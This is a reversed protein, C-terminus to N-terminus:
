IEGRWERGERLTEWLRRYQEPTTHSSQLVGPTEGVLEDRAYGTLRTFFQNVYEIEGDTNAILIASPSQDVAASLTLLREEVHKLRTLDHTAGVFYRRGALGIEGISLYMPFTAGDKRRGVVERGIGIIKKVGTQRYAALYGDHAERYPSPMLMTVNRGFTESRDYGFLREAGSSFFRILGDEEIVILGDPMTDFVVGLKAEIDKLAIAEVLERERERFTLLVSGADNRELPHLTCVVDVFNGDKRRFTTEMPRMSCWDIATAVGDGSAYRDRMIERNPQFPGGVLEDATYGLFQEAAANIGRVDGTEGLLCTCESFTDLFTRLSLPEQLILGRSTNHPAEALPM